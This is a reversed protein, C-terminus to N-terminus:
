SSLLSRNIHYIGQIFYINEEFASEGRKAFICVYVGNITDVEAGFVSYGYSDPLGEISCALTNSYPNNKLGLGFRKAIQKIDSSKFYKGETLKYTRTKNSYTFEFRLNDKSDKVEIFYQNRGNFSIERKVNSTVQNFNGSFSSYTTKMKQRNGFLNSLFGILAM